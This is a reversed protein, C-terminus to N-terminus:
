EYHDNLEKCSLSFVRSSERGNRILTVTQMGNKTGILQITDGVMIPSRAYSKKAVFNTWSDCDFAKATQPKGEVPKLPEPTVPTETPKVEVEVPPLPPTVVVVPVPPTTEIVSMCQFYAKNAKFKCANVWASASGKITQNTVTVDIWPTQEKTDSETCFHVQGNTEVRQSPDDNKIVVRTKDERYLLFNDSRVCPSTRMNVNTIPHLVVKAPISPTSAPPPVPSSKKPSSFINDLAVLVLILAMFIAILSIGFNAEM